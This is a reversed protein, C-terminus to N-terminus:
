REQQHDPSGTSPLHRNGSPDLYLTTALGDILDEAQRRQTPTLEDLSESTLTM